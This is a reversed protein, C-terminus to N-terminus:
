NARQKLSLDMSKGLLLPSGDVFDNACQAVDTWGKQAAAVTTTM